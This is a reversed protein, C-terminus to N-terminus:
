LSHYVIKLIKCDHNVMSAKVKVFDGVRAGMLGHGLPSENSIKKALPNAELTGVIMFEHHKGSSDVKVKAGIDVLARKEKPPNKIVEHRDFIGQLEDIRLRLKDMDEQYAVFEPNMDESELVKPAEQGVTKLREFDVLAAHEKQLEKLKGKTVYFTKGEM